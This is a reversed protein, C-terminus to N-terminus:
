EDGGMLDDLNGTRYYKLYDKSAQFRDKHDAFSEGGYSCRTNIDLINERCRAAMEDKTAQIHEESVGHDVPLYRYRLFAKSAEYKDKHKAFLEKGYSCRTNIDQINTRCLETMEAKTSGRNM